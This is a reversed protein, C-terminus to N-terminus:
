GASLHDRRTSLNIPSIILDSNCPLIISCKALSIYILVCMLGPFHAPKSFQNQGFFLASTPTTLLRWQNRHMMKTRAFGGTSVVTRMPTYEDEANSLITSLAGDDTDYDSDGSAETVTIENWDEDVYEHPYEHPGEIRIHFEDDEPAVLQLYVAAGTVDRLQQENVGINMLSYEEPLVFPHPKILFAGPGLRVSQIFSRHPLKKWFRYGVECQYSSSEGGEYPLLELYISRVPLSNWLEYLSNRLDPDLSPFSSLYGPAPHVWLNFTRDLFLEQIKGAGGGSPLLERLFGKEYFNVLKQFFEDVHREIVTRTFKPFLSYAELIQHLSCSDITM